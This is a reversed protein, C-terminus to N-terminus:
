PNTQKLVMTYGEAEFTENGNLHGSHKEEIKFGLKKYFALASYNKSLVSISIVSDCKGLAFQILETGIGQRYNQPDVYLWTIEAENFAIFGVVRDSQTAVFLEDDFLGENAASDELSLFAALSVSGELEHM